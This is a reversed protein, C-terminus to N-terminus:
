KLHTYVQILDLLGPLLVGPLLGILVIALIGVSCLAASFWKEGIQWDPHIANAM